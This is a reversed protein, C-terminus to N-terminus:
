RRATDMARQARRSIRLSRRSAVGILLLDIVALEALHAMSPTLADGSDPVDICLALGAAEQLPSGTMTLALVAAGQARVAAVTELIEAGRGDRSLVVMVDGKRMQSAILSQLYPDTCASLQMELRMFRRMADQAVTVTNGFGFFTVRAAGDLLRIARDLTGRDLNDRVQALAQLTFDFLSRCLTDTDTSAAISALTTPAQEGAAGMSQALRLKFDQFGTCGMSQAFRVLTPQSVDILRALSRTDQDLAAQPNALVWEAVARESKTLFPLQAQIRTLMAAAPFPHAITAAFFPM